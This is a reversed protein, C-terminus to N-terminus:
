FQYHCDIEVLCGRTGPHFADTQRHKLESVTQEVLHIQRRAFLSSATLAKTM